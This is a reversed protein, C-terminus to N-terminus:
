ILEGSFNETYFISSIKHSKLIHRLKESTGQVYLLNISMKIEDNQIDIAQPQQQLQSLSHNNTIRKFINSIIGEQYENEKM